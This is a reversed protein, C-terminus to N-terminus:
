FLYIEDWKNDDINIFILIKIKNMIKVNVAFISMMKVIAGVHNVFLIEIVDVIDLGIGHRQYRCVIV